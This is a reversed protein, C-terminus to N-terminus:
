FYRIKEVVKILYKADIGFLIQSKKRFTHPKSHNKHSKGGLYSVSNQYKKSKLYLNTNHPLHCLAHEWRVSWKGCVDGVARGGAGGWAETGVRSLARIMAVRLLLDKNCYRGGLAPGWTSAM